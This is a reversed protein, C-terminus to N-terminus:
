TLNNQLMARATLKVVKLVVTPDEGVVLRRRAMLSGAPEREPPQRRNLGGERPTVRGLVVQVM